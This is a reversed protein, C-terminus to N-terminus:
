KDTEKSSRWFRATVLVLVLTAGAFYRQSWLWRRWTKQELEHSKKQLKQTQEVIVEVTEVVCTINVRREQLDVDRVHELQGKRSQAQSRLLWFPTRQDLIYRLEICMANYNRVKQWTQRTWFYVPNMALCADLATQAYSRMQEEDAHGSLYLVLGEKQALLVNPDMGKGDTFVPKPVDPDTEGWFTELVKQASHYMSSGNVHDVLRVPELSGLIFPRGGPKSALLAYCIFADRDLQPVAPEEM